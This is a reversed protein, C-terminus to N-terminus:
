MFLIGLFYFLNLSVAPASGTASRKYYVDQTVPFSFRTTKGSLYLVFYAIATFEPVDPNCAANTAAPTLDPSSTIVVGNVTNTSLETGTM